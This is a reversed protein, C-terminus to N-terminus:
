RVQAPTEDEEESSESDEQAMAKVSPGTKQTHVPAVGQGLAAKGQLGKGGSKGQVRPTSPAAGESESENSSYVDPRQTGKALALSSLSASSTVAGAKCHSSTSAGTASTPTGKRSSAKRQKELAPKAKAPSVAGDSDSEESSSELDEEKKGMQVKLAASGAKGLCPPNAGKGSSGPTVTSVPRVQSSKGLPKVKAPSTTLTSPAPIEGSDSESEESSKAEPKGAQAAVPRAKGSTVAPTGKQSSEKAPASTGRALPSKRSTRAQPTTVTVPMEDESDSDDESSTETDKEPRGAKAQTGVPGTKGPTASIPGKGSIGKATVSTARVHPDKGSAKVQSPLGAPAEDESDSDEESSESDEAAAAAAAAAAGAAAAAAGAGAAAAIFFSLFLGALM